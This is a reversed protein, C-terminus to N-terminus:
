LFTSSITSFERKKFFSYIEFLGQSIIILYFPIIPLRFRAYGLPGTTLAFYFMIICIVVLFYIRKRVIMNISGIVFCAFNLLFLINIRFQIKFIIEHLPMNLFINKIWIFINTSKYKSFREGSMKIRLVRYYHGLNMGFFMRLSGKIHTIFYNSWNKRIYKIATEQYIDSIKFPSLSPSAGNEIAKKKLENQIQDLSKGTKRAETLGVNHFLLNYGQIMTLSFSGHESYNKYCWTSIILSFIFVYVITAKFRSLWSLGSYGM